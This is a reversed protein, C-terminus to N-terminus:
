GEVLISRFPYGTAGDPKSPMREGTQTEGTGDTARARVEHRGPTADWEYVWQRWSNDDLSAALTAEEWPGDDIQVEVRSIGRGPAWAVGAVKVIGAPVNQARKPVDVRCQTKIPGEKAWGRPIWFADFGDWTTLEIEELWKTASVYGYLGAVVLRAPFGHDHPLPEGNMGVAVLADRGDFVAATPFGVTFKDVSRGVVQDAGEQVGARELVDRLPVGQWLANGVLSGGVDNSVCALTVYREVMPMELLDDFTMSFPRDVMGDIRLEWTELDVIPVSLATDIKYFRDNPTILPSLDALEISAEAPPAAALQRAAPLVVEDRSAAMLRTRELLVRGLAAGSAALAAIGGLAVLFARRSRAPPAVPASTRAMRLLGSLVGIGVGVGAAASLVAFTPSMFVDRAGAVVGLIGFAVFGAVGVWLRRAAAIGLGAGALIGVVVIGIILALKDYLGFIEIALRTVAEPSVEIIVDGVSKILSSGAAMVGAFLETAAFASGAAVAGAAAFSWRSVTAPTATTANLDETDLTDTM